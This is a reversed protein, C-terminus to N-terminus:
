VKLLRDLASELDAGSLLQRCATTVADPRKAPPLQYLNDLFAYWVNPLRAGDTLRSQLAAHEELTLAAEADHLCAANLRERVQLLSQLAADLQQHCLSVREASDAESPPVIMPAGCRVHITTGVYIRMRGKPLALGAGLIAMPLLAVSRPPEARALQDAAAVALRAAGKKLHDGVRARRARGGVCFYGPEEPRGTADIRAPARTGQPYIALDVGSRVIETVADEIAQQRQAATGFRHVFIMGATQMAMGIRLVRYIWWNDIFHDKAALYRLHFGERNCPRTWGVVAAGIVFDLASSHNGCFIAAGDFTRWVDAGEIELRLRALQCVRAGWLAVIADVLERMRSALTRQRAVFLVLLAFFATSCIAHIASWFRWRPQVGARFDVLPGQCFPRVDTPLTMPLPGFGSFYATFFAQPHMHQHRVRWLLLQTRLRRHDWRAWFSVAICLGAYAAFLPAPAFDGRWLSPTVAFYALLVVWGVLLLSDRILHLAWDCRGLLNNLLRLGRWSREGFLVRLLCRCIPIGYVNIALVTILPLRVIGELFFAGCWQLPAPRM